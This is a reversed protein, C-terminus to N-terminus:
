SHRSLLSYCNKQPQFFLFKCSNSFYHPSRFTSSHELLSNTLLSFSNYPLLCSYQKIPDYNRLYGTICSHGLTYMNTMTFPSTNKYNVFIHNQPKTYQLFKTYTQHPSLKKRFLFSLHILNTQKSITCLHASFTSNSLSFKSEM